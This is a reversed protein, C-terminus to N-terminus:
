EMWGIVMLRSGRPLVGPYKAAIAEEATQGPERWVYIAAGASAQVELRSVRRDLSTM